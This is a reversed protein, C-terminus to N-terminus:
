VISSIKEDIMAQQHHFIWPMKIHDMKQCFMQFM